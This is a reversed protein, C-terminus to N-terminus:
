PPGRTGWSYVRPAIADASFHAQNEPFQAQSGVCIYRPCYPCLTGLQWKAGFHSICCWRGGFAANLYVGTLHVGILYAGYSARGHHVRRHSAYWHPAHGYRLRGHPVRLSTCAQSAREHSVRGHPVRGHSAPGYPVRGHSAPGHPVRGHPVELLSLEVDQTFARYDDREFVPDTWLPYDPFERRM